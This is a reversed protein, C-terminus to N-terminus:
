AARSRGLERLLREGTSVQPFLLRDSLLNLTGRLAPFSAAAAAFVGGLGARRALTHESALAFGRRGLADYYSVDPGGRRLRQAAIRDPFFGALWLAYNGLHAMLRFRRDGETREMAALLDVLYHHTDDEHSGARWARDHHGFELVVAALYDALEDDTFGADLLYRRVMVYVFLPESPILLTRAALLRRALSPDDLLPGPGERALQAELQSRRVADGGALAILVVQLDPGRFRSRVNPRIMM